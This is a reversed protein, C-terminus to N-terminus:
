LIWWMLIDLNAVINRHWVNSNFISSIELIVKAERTNLYTQLARTTEISREIEQPAESIISIIGSGNL